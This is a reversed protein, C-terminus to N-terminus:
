KGCFHGRPTYCNCENSYQQWHAYRYGSVQQKIVIKMPLSDGMIKGKRYELCKNHDDQNHGDAARYERGESATPTEHGQIVSVGVIDM